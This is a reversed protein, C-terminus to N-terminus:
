HNDNDNGSENSNSGHDETAPKAAAGGMMKDIALKWSGDEKVMQMTIVPQNPAKIDVTATDGSVKENSFEPEPMQSDRDAGEKFMQDLTKGQAKAFGEMMEITSHSLYGKVTELDKKKAAAYYAKLTDTPATGAPKATSSTSTTTSSSGNSSNGTNANKSCAALATLTLALSLATIGRVSRKMSLKINM